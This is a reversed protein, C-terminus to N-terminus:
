DEIDIISMQSNQIRHPKNYEERFVITNYRQHLRYSLTKYEKETITGIAVANLLHKSAKFVDNRTQIDCIDFLM